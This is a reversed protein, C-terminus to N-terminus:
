PRLFLVVMGVIGIAGLITLAIIMGLQGETMGLRTRYADFDLNADSEKASAPRKLRMRGDDFKEVLVWGGRAEQELAKRMKAPDKFANTLSRLIKFEWGQTLDQRSYPTMEEEEKRKREAAAAAAGAAVTAGVPVTMAGGKM